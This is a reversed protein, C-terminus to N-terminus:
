YIPREQRGQDRRDIASAIREFNLELGRSSTMFANAVEFEGRKDELVLHAVRGYVTFPQNQM